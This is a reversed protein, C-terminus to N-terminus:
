TPGAASMGGEAAVGLSGTGCNPMCMRGCCSDGCFYNQGFQQQCEATSECSPFNCFFNAGCMLSGEVSEFCFCDAGCQQFNCATGCDCGVTCQGEAICQCTAQDFFQGQPCATSVCQESCLTTGSPCQCVGGMCESGEPCRNFCSGCHRENTQLNVCRVNCRTKGEPCGCVKHDGWRVCNKSCCQSDRRCERGLRRCDNAWAVGPFSALAAGLLAGGMWRIAKGRSLTGSALGKALEDLSRETTQTAM